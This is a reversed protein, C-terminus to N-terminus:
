AGERTQEGSDTLEDMEKETRGPSSDTVSKSQTSSSQLPVFRGKIGLINDELFNMCDM